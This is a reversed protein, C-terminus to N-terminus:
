VLLGGRGGKLSGLGIKGLGVKCNSFLRNLIPVLLYCADTTKRRWIVFLLDLKKEKVKLFFERSTAYNGGISAPIALFRAGAYSLYRSAWTHLRLKIKKLIIGCDEVKWNTPRMPVRLYKLPFSREEFQIVKLLQEKEEQTVGGFYLQSKQFNAGLWTSLKESFEWDVTDYAKSLDVKLACRPSANNRNYNKILDQFIMINHALSHNKVFARQNQSIINPLIESLRSCLMRSICKYLTNCCVNPRYDVACSPFETKPALAIVTENLEAPIRRTEFFNLMVDAIEVGIDLWMAKYLESGYGDPGPSKTSPISTRLTFLLFSIYFAPATRGLPRLSPCTRIPNNPLSGQFLGIFAKPITDLGISIDELTKLSGNRLHNMTFSISDPFMDVFDSALFGQIQIRKYVIDVMNLSTRNNTNTYESIVGCAAVRGFHKMNAIAAELMEGGVNDFYIDIGDPFYKKITSKLNPQDKYNFADDFGLKEKLLAVKEKTGACGVVYCGFQKAYQGVLHGVSGSATSVFVKEGKKPKSVEFLGCYATLGSFGFLGVQHSLPFELAMPNLKRFM